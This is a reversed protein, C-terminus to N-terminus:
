RGDSWLRNAAAFESSGYDPVDASRRRCSSWCLPPDTPRPSFPRSDVSCHARGVPCRDALRLLATAFREPRATRIRELTVAGSWRPPWHYLPGYTRLARSAPHRTRRRHVAAWSGRAVPGIVLHGPHMRGDVAYPLIVERGLRAGLGTRPAASQVQVEM